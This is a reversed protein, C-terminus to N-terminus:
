KNIFLKASISANCMNFINHTTYNNIFHLMRQANFTTCCWWMSCYRKKSLSLTILKTGSESAGTPTRKNSLWYKIEFCLKWHPKVTKMEYAALLTQRNTIVDTRQGRDTRGDMQRHLTYRETFCFRRYKYKIKCASPWPWM